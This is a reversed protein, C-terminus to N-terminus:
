INKKIQFSTKNIITSEKFDVTNLWKKTGVEIQKGDINVFTMDEELEEYRSEKQIDGKLLWIWIIYFLM